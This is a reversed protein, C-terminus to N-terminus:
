RGLVKSNSSKLSLIILDVMHVNYICVNSLRFKVIMVVIM